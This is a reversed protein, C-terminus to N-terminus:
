CNAYKVENTSLYESKFRFVGWKSREWVKYHCLYRYHERMSFAKSPELYQRDSENPGYQHLFLGLPKTRWENFKIILLKIKNM